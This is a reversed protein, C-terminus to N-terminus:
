NALPFAKDYWSLINWACFILNTRIALMHWCKLFLGQTCEKIICKWWSNCQWSMQCPSLSWLTHCSTPQVKWSQWFSPCYPFYLFYVYLRKLFLSLYTKLLFMSKEAKWFLQFWHSSFTTVFLLNLFLIKLSRPKERITGACSTVPLQVSQM